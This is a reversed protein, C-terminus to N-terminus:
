GEGGSDRAARRDSDLPTRPLVMVRGTDLRAIAVEDRGVIAVLERPLNPWRMVKVFGADILTVAGHESM